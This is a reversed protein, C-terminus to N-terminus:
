QGSLAIEKTEVNAQLTTQWVVTETGNTESDAILIFNWWSTNGQLKM